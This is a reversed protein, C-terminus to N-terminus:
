LFEIAFDLRTWKLPTCCKRLSPWCFALLHSLKPELKQLQLLYSLSFFHENLVKLSKSPFSFILLNCDVSSISSEVSLQLPVSFFVLQQGPVFVWVLFYWISPLRWAGLCSFSLYEQWKTNPFHQLCFFIQLPQVASVEVFHMDCCSPRQFDGSCLKDSLQATTNQELWCM